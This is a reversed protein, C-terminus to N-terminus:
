EFKVNITDQSGANQIIEKSVLLPTAQNQKKNSRFMKNFIRSVHIRLSGRKFANDIDSQCVNIDRENDLWDPIKWWGETVWDCESIEKVSIRSDPDKDLMRRLLWQLNPSLHPNIEPISEVIEDMLPLIDESQFPPRGHVLCFLTVGLAWVDMKYGDLNESDKDDKCHEPAMFLPSTNIGGSGKKKQTINNGYFDTSVEEEFMESIGFDAIQVYGTLRRNQYYSELRDDTSTHKRSKTIKSNINNFPDYIFEGSPSTFCSKLLLNEPKLDRHVIKRRHMYDIGCLIDRFYDKAVDESYTPVDDGIKVNMIAGYECLEFIMYIMDEDEDELVEILSNIHIHASIKKLIAIEKRIMSVGDSDTKWRFKRKLRGKSVMKCAYYRDDFENRCLVVRGYAGYGIDKILYYQNLRGISVEEEGTSSVRTESDDATYVESTLKVPQPNSFIRRKADGKKDSKGYNLSDKRNLIKIYSSNSQDSGKKYYLGGKTAGATYHKSYTGLSNSLPVSVSRVDMSVPTIDEVLDLPDQGTPSYNSNRLTYVSNSIERNSDYYNPKQNNKNSNDLNPFGLPTVPTSYSLRVASPRFMTTPGNTDSESLAMTPPVDKRNEAICKDSEIRPSYDNYFSEDDDNDDYLDNSEYLEKNIAVKGKVPIPTKLNDTSCSHSAPAKVDVEDDFYEDQIDNHHLKVDRNFSKSRGLSELSRTPTYAINVSTPSYTLNRRMKLSNLKFGKNVLRAGLKHLAFDKSSSIPASVTEYPIPPLEHTIGEEDPTAATSEIYMLPKAVNTPTEYNFTNLPVKSFYDFPTSSYNSSTSHSRQNIDPLSSPLSKGLYDRESKDSYECIDKHNMSVSSSICSSKLSKADISNVSFTDSDTYINSRTKKNSSKSSSNGNHNRRLSRIFNGIPRSPHNNASSNSAGQTSDNSVNLIVNPTQEYGSDFYGGCQFVTNKPSSSFSHISNTDLISNVDSALNDYSGYSRGIGCQHVIERSCYASNDNRRSNDTESSSSPDNNYNETDNNQSYCDTRGLPSSCTPSYLPIQTRRELRSPSSSRSNNPSVRSENYVDDMSASMLENTENQLPTHSHSLSKFKRSISSMVSRRSGYSFQRNHSIDNQATDARKADLQFLLLTEPQIAIPTRDTM